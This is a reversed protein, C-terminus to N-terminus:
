WRSLARKLMFIFGTLYTALFIMAVGFGVLWESTEPPTFALVVLTVVAIGVPVAFICAGIQSARKSDLLIVAEYFFFANGFMTGIFWYSWTTWIDGLIGSIIMGVLCAASLVFLIRPLVHHMYYREKEKIEQREDM